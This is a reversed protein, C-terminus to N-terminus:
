RLRGLMTWWQDGVHERIRAAQGLAIEYDEYIAFCSAGSGSMRAVLAGSTRLFKIIEGIEPCLAIAPNELDNRGQLMIKRASGTPIPGRDIGDWNAFVPGTLLPVMPNVLLCALGEVNNDVPFLDTGTGKGIMSKSALCAPVDAGLRAALDLWDGKGMLWLMAAADASGGGLGAAVPLNKVLDVRFDPLQGENAMRAARTVLNTEVPGTNRGFPGSSVLTYQPAGKSSLMDGGDLFAFLTELDHYGDTRRGRVHLALNIKAYAVERPM